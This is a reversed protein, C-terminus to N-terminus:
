GRRIERTTGWLLLLSGVVSAYPFIWLVAGVKLLPSGYRNGLRWAGVVMGVIGVLACLGGVGLLGLAIDVGAEYLCSSVSACGIFGPGIALFLLASIAILVWGAIAPVLLRTPTSFAPSVRSLARYGSRLLIIEAVTLVAIVVVAAWLPSPGGSFRLSVGGTAGSSALGSGSTVAQGAHDASLLASTLGVLVVVGAVVGFAAARRISRLAPLDARRDPPRGGESHGTGGDTRRAVPVAVRTAHAVVPGSGAAESSGPPRGRTAQAGESGESASEAGPALARDPASVLRCLSVPGKSGEAFGGRALATEAEFTPGARLAVWVPPEDRV